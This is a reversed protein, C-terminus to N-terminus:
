KRCLTLRGLPRCPGKPRDPPTPYVRVTWPRDTRDALAALAAQLEAEAEARGEERGRARATEVPDADVVVRTHVTSDAAKRIEFEYTSAGAAIVLNTITSRAAAYAEPAVRLVATNDHPAPLVELRVARDGPLGAAAYVIPAPLIFVTVFGPRVYVPLPGPPAEPRGAAAATILVAAALLPRTRM